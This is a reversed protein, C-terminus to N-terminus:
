QSNLWEKFQKDVYAVDEGDMTSKLRLIAKDLGIVENGKNEHKIMLLDFYSSKLDANKNSPM